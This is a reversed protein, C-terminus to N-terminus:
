FFYMAQLIIIQSKNNSVNLVHNSKFIIFYRDKILLLMLVLFDNHLM